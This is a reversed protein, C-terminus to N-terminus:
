VVLRAADAREAPTGAGFDWSVRGDKATILTIEPNVLEVRRIEVERRLAAAAGVGISLGEAKLLPAADWEPGAVVVPGTKVGLVPWVSLGIDGTISVERGLAKSIEASAVKAIREKPLLFLGLAAFGLFVVVGFFLGRLIRM